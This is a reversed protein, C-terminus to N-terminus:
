TVCSREWPPSVDHDPDVGLDPDLQGPSMAVALDLGGRLLPQGGSGVDPGTGAAAPTAPRTM